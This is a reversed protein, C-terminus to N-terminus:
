FGIQIGALFNREAAPFFEPGIAYALYLKDFLNNVQVFVKVKKLVPELNLEYSGFFNATFYSEVKNDAYYLFGPYSELYSQLKYDYNDSYFDGVYKFLLQAFINDTHFNLIGNLTLDPFGSIRNDKLDLFTVEDEGSGEDTYEIFAGGKSINNKSLSGNITLDFYDLFKLTGIFEFGTHITEEMNGTVPQGFRDVQGKKVIENTFLMYYFNIAASLEDDSYNSGIEFSNMTEPEVLPKTFDFVSNNLEFQPIAGGSSEAADYYDKLRPERTVRAYSLYISLNPLLKYNVGFRPNFFLDDIEFENDLYKENEIRYNHYALQLEALLNIQESYNYDEHVFFNYIDKGGEYYYYRFNQTLGVPLNEGFQIGGWHISNHKRFEGGIILEGNTHKLSFKPIWGWQKNEVMARILVNGLNGQPNFGFENTLRLYSTDAWSGDYDFFGDGLILFLNSNFTMDASLNIENMLEFHPQSFNEIEEPRRELSYSYEKNNAEWYSYNNKRLEKDSNVFKPLGTYVLADSINGGYINIQSTINEDYRVAAIHFSNFDIWSKDRYGSGLLKGFKAYVSYRNDILGSSVAISYKRTNYSGLGTTLEFKPKDSFTSTIINISGGVAPYGVVGSGSGRQVQILEASGMLDPMDVWYVNHDEPENQPIGNVSISIRRQDFGRISLYNYGTGNGAESYFTIGPLYSLYEPIDQVTYNKEIEDKNIKSFTIPTKGSEGVSGRVFVTQSQLITKELQIVVFLDDMIEAVPISKTKFGVYSARLTDEAKIEGQISFEGNQDTPVAIRKGEISITSLHLPSNDSANLVRGRIIRQQPIIITQLFLFLVFFYKM